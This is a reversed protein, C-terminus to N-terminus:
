LLSGLQRCFLRRDAGVELPKLLLAVLQLEHQGRVLGRAAQLVLGVLVHRAGVGGAEGRAQGGGPGGAEGQGRQLELLLGRARRALMLVLPGCRTLVLLRAAPGRPGGHLRLLLLLLVHCRHPLERQLGHLGKVRGHHAERGADRRAASAAGEDERVRTQRAQLVEQM